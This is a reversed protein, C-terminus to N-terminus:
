EGDFADRIITVLQRSTKFENLPLCIEKTCIRYHAYHRLSPQCQDEREQADDAKRKKGAKSENERDYARAKRAANTSSDVHLWYDSALTAQNKVDGHCVLTPVNNVNAKNLKELTDGETDINEYFPRWADKLFVFSGSNEHWAVYGKTGRGVLGNSEFIPKGVLFSQDRITLRYRPWNHLSERFYQLAHDFVFSGEEPQIVQTAPGGATSPTSSSDASCIADTLTRHNTKLSTSYEGETVDNSSSDKSLTTMPIDSSLITDEEHSVLIPPNQVDAPAGRKAVEDMVKYSKSKPGLLTATTDIGQSADDLILFGILFEVLTRTNAIYDVKQTVFLGSKDWRLFRFEQGVVFLQFVATRHQYVFIQHAYGTLQGCVKSRQEAVPQTDRNRHDEFADTQSNEAQVKFEAPLVQHVWNPRDKELQAESRFIAADVKNEGPDNSDAHNLSLHMTYSPVTRRYRLRSQPSHNDQPLTSSATSARTRTRSTTDAPTTQPAQKSNRGRAPTKTAQM